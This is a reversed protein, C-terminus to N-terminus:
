RENYELEQTALLELIQGQVAPDKIGQDVCKAWAFNTLWTAMYLDDVACWHTIEPHQDLWATIEGARQEHYTTAGPLWDTYALPMKEIGQKHYFECM